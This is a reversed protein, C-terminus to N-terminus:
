CDSKTLAGDLFDDRTGAPLQDQCAAPRPGGAGGSARGCGVAEAAHELLALLQRKLLGIQTPDLEFHEALEALDSVGALIMMRDYGPPQVKPRATLRTTRRNASARRADGAVV